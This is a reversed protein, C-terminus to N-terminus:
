CLLKLESVTSVNMKSSESDRGIRMSGATEAAPVTDMEGVEPGLPVATLTVPDPNPADSLTPAKVTKTSPIPPLVVVPAGMFAFLLSAVLAVPTM